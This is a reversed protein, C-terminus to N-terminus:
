QIVEPQDVDHIGLCALLRDVTQAAGFKGRVFKQTSERAKDRWAHDRLLAIVAAAFGNADTDAQILHGTAGPEITERAGGVDSSVAPVGFHQGEILVNPLGERESTLLNVDMIRFWEGVDPIRGPMHLRSAFGNAEAFARVDAALAGDGLVVFHARPLTKAIIAATEIWLMPRKVPEIRFAGGVVQDHPGIGLTERLELNPSTDSGLKEFEVANYVLRFRTADGSGTWRKDSEVGATSNNAILFQPRQLLMRYTHRMPRLHLNAQLENHEWLDPSLSGRHILYRPVGTIACALAGAFIDQRLHVAQPRERLILKCLRIIEERLNYPLLELAAILLERGALDPLEQLLQSKKRWAEGYVFLEIPIDRVAPLFFRQEERELSRVALSVKGIRADQAMRELVTVTQRESGGQGLSAVVTFLRGPKASYRLPPTECEALIIDILCEPYLLDERVGCLAVVREVMDLRLRYARDGRVESTINAAATIARGFHHYRAHLVAIEADLDIPLGGKPSLSRAAMFHALASKADLRAIALTGLIWKSLADSGASETIIAVHRSLDNQLPSHSASHRLRRVIEVLYSLDKGAVQDFPRFASFVEYVEDLVKADLRAKDFIRVVNLRARMNREYNILSRWVDAAAEPQQANVLINSIRAMMETSTETKLARNCFEAVDPSRGCRDALMAAEIWIEPDVSRQDLSRYISLASDTNERELYFQALSHALQPCEFVIRLAKAEWGDIEDSDVGATSRRARELIDSLERESSEHLTNDPGSKYQTNRGFDGGRTRLKRPPARQPHALAQLKDLREDAGIVDRLAAIESQLDEPRSVPLRDALKAIEEGAVTARLEKAERHEPNRALVADLYHLTRQPHRLRKHIRALAMLPETDAPVLEAIRQWHVLAAEFDSGKMLLRAYYRRPRIRDPWQEVLGALLEGARAPDSEVHGLAERELASYPPSDAPPMVSDACQELM